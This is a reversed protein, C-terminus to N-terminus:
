NRGKHKLGIQQHIYHELPQISSKDNCDQIERTYRVYITIMNGFYKLYEVNEMQTKDIRFQTPFQQRPIVMVKTKEVNSEMGYCRVIELLRDIMNQLVTEEKALLM